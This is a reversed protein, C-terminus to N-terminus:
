HLRTGLQLENFVPSSLSIATVCNPFISSKSCNFSLGDTMEWSRLNLDTWCADACLESHLDDTSVGALTASDIADTLVIITAFDASCGWCFKETTEPCTL